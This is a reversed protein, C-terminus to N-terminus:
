DETNSAWLLCVVNNVGAEYPAVLDMFAFWITPVALDCLAKPAVLIPMYLLHALCCFTAPHARLYPMLFLVAIYLFVLCFPLTNVAWLSLVVVSAPGM